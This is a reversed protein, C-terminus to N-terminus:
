STQVVHPPYSSSKIRVNKGTTVVPTDFFVVQHLVVKACTPQITM